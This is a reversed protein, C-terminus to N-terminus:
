RGQLGKPAQLAQRCVLQHLAADHRVPQWPLALRLQRRRARPQVAARRAARCQVQLVAPRSLALPPRRLHPLPRPRPPLHKPPPDFRTLALASASAGSSAAWCVGGDMWWLRVMPGTYLRAAMLEFQGLPPSDLKALRANIAARADDFASLPKPERGSQGPALGAETPWAERGLKALGTSPEVVFYFEVPPTTTVSYNPTTFEELSDTAKCHERAIADALRPSPSGVLGELGSFFTSLGSFTMSFSSGDECFKAHLERATAAEARALAQAQRHVEGAVSELLAGSHLLGVITEHGSPSALSRIFAVQSEPSTAHSPLGLRLTRAVHEHVGLSACWAAISWEGESHAAAPPPDNAPNNDGDAVFSSRLHPPPESTAPDDDGDAVFSSRLHPAAAAAVVARHHKLLEAAIFPLPEIPQKAFCADLADSMVAELTPIHRTAYAHGMPADDMVNTPSHYLQIIEQRCRGMAAGGHGNGFMTVTKVSRAHTV